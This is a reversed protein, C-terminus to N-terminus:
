IASLDDTPVNSIKKYDPKPSTGTRPTLQRSGRAMWQWCNGALCILSVVLWGFLGSRDAMNGVLVLPETSVERGAVKEKIAYTIGGLAMMMMIGSFTSADRQQIGSLLTKEVSAVGFSKFQGVIAGQETSMWLPKDQGPTVTVRDVDRVVASRFADRAAAANAGSWELTNAIYVGDEVKGHAKFQTHIDRALTEDIGFLDIIDENSVITM